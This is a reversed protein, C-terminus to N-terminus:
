AGERYRKAAADLKCGPCAGCRTPSGHEDEGELACDRFARSADYVELLLDARRRITTNAERSERLQVELDALVTRAEELDEKVTAVVAEAFNRDAPVVAGQNRMFETVAVGGTLLGRDDADATIKASARAVVEDVTVQKPNDPANPPIGRSLSTVGTMYQGTSAAAKHKSKAGSKKERSM